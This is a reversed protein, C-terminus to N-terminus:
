NLLCRFAHESHERQHHHAEATAAGDTMQAGSLRKSVSPVGKLTRLVRTLPNVSVGKSSRGRAVDPLWEQEKTPM